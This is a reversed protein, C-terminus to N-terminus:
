QGMIVGRVVILSIPVILPAWMLLKLLYKMDRM